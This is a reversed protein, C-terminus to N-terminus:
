QLCWTVSLTECLSVLTKKDRDSSSCGSALLSLHSLSKTLVSRGDSNKLATLMSFRQPIDASALKVTAQQVYKTTNVIVTGISGDEAKFSGAVVTPRSITVKIARRGDPLTDGKEDALYHWVDQMACEIEPPRLTVGRLLYETFRAYPRGYSFFAESVTKKWEDNPELPVTEMYVTPILGRVLPLALRYCRLEASGWTEGM